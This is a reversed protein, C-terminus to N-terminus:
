EVAVPALDTHLIEAIRIHWPAGKFELSASHVARTQWERPALKPHNKVDAKWYDFDSAFRRRLEAPAITQDDLLESGRVPPERDPSGAVLFGRALDVGGVRGSWPTRFGCRYRASRSRGGDRAIRM